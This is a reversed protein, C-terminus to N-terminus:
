FRLEGELQFEYFFYCLLVNVHKCCMVLTECHVVSTLAVLSCYGFFLLLRESTWKVKRLPGGGSISFAESPLSYYRCINPRRLSARRAAVAVALLLVRQQGSFRRRQGVADAGVRARARLLSRISFAAAPPPHAATRDSRHACTAYLVYFHATCIEILVPSLVCHQARIHWKVYDCQAFLTSRMNLPSLSLASIQRRM